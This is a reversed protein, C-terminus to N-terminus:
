NELMQVFWKFEGTMILRDSEDTLQVTVSIVGRDKRELMAILKDHADDTITATAQVTSTAPHKYQAKADRLLATVRGELQPFCKQLYPGSQTEALTFAAGAHLSGMHNQINQSSDLKLINKDKHEIGIHKAFPILLIDM